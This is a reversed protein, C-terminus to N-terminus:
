TRIVIRIPEKLYIGHTKHLRLYHRAKSGGDDSKSKVERLKVMAKEKVTDDVKLLCIQQEFNIKNTDLKNIKNTYQITEVLCNNFLEYMKWTFNDMLETQEQTDVTGNTDMTLLDYLFYAIYKNSVDIDNLLFYLLINRKQMSSRSIFESSMSVLSQQKFSNLESMGGM